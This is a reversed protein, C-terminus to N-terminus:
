FRRTEQQNKSKDGPSLCKPDKAWGEMKSNTKHKSTQEKHLKSAKTM